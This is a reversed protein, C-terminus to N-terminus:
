RPQGIRSGPHGSQIQIQIQLLLRICIKRKKATDGAHQTIM